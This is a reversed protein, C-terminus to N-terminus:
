DDRVLVTPPTNALALVGKACEACIVGVASVLVKDNEKQGCAAAVQECANAAEDLTFRRVLSVAKTLDAPSLSSQVWSNIESRVRSGTELWAFGDQGEDYFALGVTNHERTMVWIPTGDQPEDGLPKWEGLGSQM